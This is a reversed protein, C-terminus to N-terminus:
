LKPLDKAEARTMIFEETISGHVRRTCTIQTKSFSQKMQYGRYIYPDAPNNAEKWFWAIFEGYPYYLEYNYVDWGEGNKEYYVMSHDARFDYYYQIAGAGPEKGSWVGVLEQTKDPARQILGTVGELEPIRMGDLSYVLTTLSAVDGAMYNIQSEQLFQIGSETTGSIKLTNDDAITYSFGASEYWVMGTQANAFVANAFHMTNDENFTMVFSQDTDAANLQLWQGIILDDYDTDLSDESCASFLSAAFLALIAATLSTLKKM